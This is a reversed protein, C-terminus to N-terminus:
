SKNSLTEIYGIKQSNYFNEVKKEFEPFTPSQTVVPASITGENSSASETAASTTSTAKPSDSMPMITPM